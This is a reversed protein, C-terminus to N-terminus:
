AVTRAVGSGADRRTRLRREPSLARASRDAGASGAPLAGLDGGPESVWLQNTALLGAVFGHGIVEAVEASTGPPQRRLHKTAASRRQGRIVSFQGQVPPRTLVLHARDQAWQEDAPTWTFASRVTRLM